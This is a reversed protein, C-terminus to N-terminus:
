QTQTGDAGVVFSNFAAKTAYDKAAFTIAGDARREVIVYGYNVSGSLPAGGNGTIVQKDGAYHEFTHSHGALVMTTPHQALIQDSPQVGPANASSGEHRVVFTYTTPKALEQDLWTAQDQTWANAAVFLFKATWSQDAATFNVGYYPAAQGIPGLLKTLFAQYNETM